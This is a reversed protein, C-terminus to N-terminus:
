EGGELFKDLEKDLNEAMGVFLDKTQKYSFFEPFFVSIQDSKFGDQFFRMKLWHGGNECKIIRTEIKKIDHITADM